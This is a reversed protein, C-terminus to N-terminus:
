APKKEGARAATAAIFADIQDPKWGDFSIPPLVVPPPAPILPTGDKGTLEVPTKGLLREVAKPAFEHIYKAALMEVGTPNSALLAQLEAKEMMLIRPIAERLADEAEKWNVTKKKRGGLKTRPDGRTFRRGNGRAPKPPKPPTDTM